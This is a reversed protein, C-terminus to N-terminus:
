SGSAAEPAPSTSSRLDNEYEKYFDGKLKNSLSAMYARLRPEELSAAEKAKLLLGHFADEKMRGSLKVSLLTPFINEYAKRVEVASPSLAIFNLLFEPRMIYQSGRRNYLDGTHRRVRFEHTLWWTRYGFSTTSSQENLADRRGYTALIMLADNEALIPKKKFPEIRAKLEELQKRVCLRMLENRPEYRMNFKNILYSRLEDRGSPEHLQQYACFQQIFHQWNAPVDKENPPSLRAYFYSRILIKPAHRAVDLTVHADIASFYNQYEWDSTELNRHVEDMVPEALVLRAGAQALMQLLNTTMRDEPRLFRESLAHILIDAGVYLYFDSAM